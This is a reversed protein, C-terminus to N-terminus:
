DFMVGIQKDHSWVPHCRRKFQDAAIVLIFAEPLGRPNAVDVRAGSSSINRVVCDVTGGDPFALMGGKFVRHRPSTRQETNTESMRIARMDGNQGLNAAASQPRIFASTDVPV